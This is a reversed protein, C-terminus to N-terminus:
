IIAKLFNFGKQTIRDKRIAGRASEVMAKFDGFISVDQGTDKLKALLFWHNTLPNRQLIIKNDVTYTDVEDNPLKDMAESITM